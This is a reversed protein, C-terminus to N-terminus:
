YLLRINVLERPKYAILGSSHQVSTTVSHMACQMLKMLLLIEAVKRNIPVNLLYEILM